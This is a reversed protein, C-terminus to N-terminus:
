GHHPEKLLLAQAHRALEKADGEHLHEILSDVLQVVRMWTAHRLVTIPGEWRLGPNARVLDPTLVRAGLDEACERLWALAEDEAALQACLLSAQVDVCKGRDEGLWGSVRHVFGAGERQAALLAPGCYAVWRTDRLVQRWQLKRTRDDAM